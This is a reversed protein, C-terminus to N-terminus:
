FGLMCSEQVFPHMCSHVTPRVVWFWYAGDVEEFNPAYGHLGLDSQEKLILVTKLERQM